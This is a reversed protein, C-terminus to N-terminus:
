ALCRGARLDRLRRHRRFQPQDEREEIIRVALWIHHEKLVRAMALQTRLSALANLPSEGLGLRPDDPQFAPAAPRTMM